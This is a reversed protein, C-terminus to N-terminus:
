VMAAPPKDWLGRGAQTVLGEAKWRKLHRNAEECGFEFAQRLQGTTFQDPLAKFKDIEAQRLPDLALQQTLSAREYHTAEGSEDLHRTAYYPGVNGRGRRYGAIVLGEEGGYEAVGIREDSANILAKGGRARELWQKPHDTLNPMNYRDDNKTPEKNIHHVLWFTVNYKRQSQRFPKFAQRVKENETTAGPWAEYPDIVVVRPLGGHEPLALWDDVIQMIKSSDIDAPSDVYHWARWCPVPKPMGLADLMPRLIISGSDERSNEFDMYLVAAQKTEFGIFTTGTAICITAQYILPSKGIGSDGAMLVIKRMGILGEILYERRNQYPRANLLDLTDQVGSRRLADYASVAAPSHILPPAVAADPAYNSLTPGQEAELLATNAAITM